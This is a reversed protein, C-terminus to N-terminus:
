FNLIINYNSIKKQWMLPNIIQVPLIWHKKKYNKIGLIELSKSCIFYNNINCLKLIGFSISYNKLLFKETKQKKLIQLIGDGIFFLAIDETLSSISILADLGEKGVSNGYPSKSFIFAIKNM